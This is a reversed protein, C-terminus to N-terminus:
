FSSSSNDVVNLHLVALAAVHEATPQLRLREVLQVLFDAASWKDGVAWLMRVGELGSARAAAYNERLAALHGQYVRACARSWADGLREFLM